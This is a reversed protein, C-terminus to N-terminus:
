GLLCSKNSKRCNKKFILTLNNSYFGKYDKLVDSIHLVENLKFYARSFVHSLEYENSLYGKKAKYFELYKIISQNYKARGKSRFIDILEYDSILYKIKSDWIERFQTIKNKEDILLRNDGYNLNIKPREQSIQLDLIYEPQSESENETKEWLILDNPLDRQFAEPIVYESIKEESIEGLEKEEEEKAEEKEEDMEHEIQREKERSRSRSRSQKEKKEISISPSISGKQPTSHKSSIEQKNESM